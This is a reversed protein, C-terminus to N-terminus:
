KEHSCSLVKNIVEITEAVTLCHEAQMDAFQMSSQCYHRAGIRVPNRFGLSAIFSGLGSERRHDELTFLRFAKECINKLFKDHDEFQAIAIVDLCVDERALQESAEIAIQLMHPGSTFLANRNKGGSGAKFINANERYFPLTTFEPGPTRHLRFYAPKARGSQAMEAKMRKITFELLRETSARDVPEFIDLDGLAQMLGLDNIAQHSKGDTFYDIGAYHGAFIVPVKETICAFIQDLSRKFFSAYTNVVAIRGALGLGAATSCMDQESIGMELFRPGFDAAVESLRCSKELDADLVYIDQDQSYLKILTRAFAEGTSISGATTAAMKVPAPEMAAANKKYAEFSENLAPVACKGVLEHLIELYESDDPIQGHWKGNRRATNHAMSTMTAGGGKFTEAIIVGPLESEILSNIAADIEKISHGNVEFVQLGIGRFVKAWDDADKIDATRSDSQLHNRDVVPIVLGPNLKKLSLFAEFLQGEQLEGDGMIAFVPHRLSAAKNSIAIGLAKSLGQGLSGSDSDVGPVLRDCHAPLGQRHKYSLLRETSFCGMGALVAYQAMAAHGKSLHISGRETIKKLPHCIHRYYICTLLEMSSFCAGLWGHNASKLGALCNIRHVAALKELDHDTTRPLQEIIANSVLFPQMNQELQQKRGTKKRTSNRKHQDTQRLIVKSRTKKGNSSSVM